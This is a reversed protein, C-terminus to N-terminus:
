KRETAFSKELVSEIGKLMEKFQKHQNNCLLIVTKDADTYRLIHTFYGPNDGSHRIKRGLADRDTMWGFGYGGFDYKGAAGSPTFGEELTERKLLQETYLSRDWKLLDTSTSSIRGPGKRNGLYYVYNSEPFSDARIYRAKAPVYIHGWAVEKIALKEAPSRLDTDNMQLPKFIRERCFEVFDRGSVKEAITGLLVYGTNNYQYMTGPEFKKAPHYRILYELIDPNSAVKTKDWHDKMMTEYEPLGSTHNLLNRVTIGPYPLNGIYKEVPDDYGMKGEEKLMMILTATFQKSVSALEFISTTDNPEQTEFNRYGFAKHYVVKGKDAILAVGSFDPVAAFLSDLQQSLPHPAEKKSQCSTFFILGALLLKILANM